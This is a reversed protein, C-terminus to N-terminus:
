GKKDSLQFKNIDLKNDIKSKENYLNEIDNRNNLNMKVEM